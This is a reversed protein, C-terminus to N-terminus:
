QAYKAAERMNELMDDAETLGMSRAEEVLRIGETYDGQMAKLIGRAYVAKASNGANQLFKEASILDRRTLAANAANLHAREDEPYMRVAVEFVENYEDSGPELTAALRYMESLSLKQPKTRLIEAIERVDTFGRITYEIRYDSHRLAPYVNRLLWAYEEPYDKKIKSNRAYDEINSNVISLINEKYKLNNNELWERLGPWDVPNYSTTIFGEPFNYLTQVYEKLAKTRNKSLYVNNDYPGEPSATGQIHISNVTIDPDNKVSDITAIIKGLEYTNNRYDPYIIIKNVPFDVYARGSLERAKVEEAIIDEFILRPELLKEPAEYYSVLESSVVEGNNCGACGYDDRRVILSSGNMWESYEVNDVYQVPAMDKRYRMAIQGEPSVPVTIRREFQYWRTRGYVGVPSLELTDTGNVIMPTFVTADNSGLHLESLNLEMGATMYSGNRVLKPSSVVDIGSDQSWVPLALGALLMATAVRKIGNKIEKIHKM